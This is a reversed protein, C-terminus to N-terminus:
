IAPLAKIIEGRMRRSFPIKIGSFYIERNEIDISTARGVNSLYSRHVKMFGYVSLLEALERLSIFSTFSHNQTYTISQNGDAQIYIIDAIVIKYFVDKKKFYLYQENSLVAGEQLPNNAIGKLSNMALEIATQLSFKSVPKNLYGISNNTKVSEYDMSEEMEGILIIPIQQNKVQEAIQLGAQRNKIHNNMLVLDPQDMLIIELAEESNDVSGKVQYGIARVLRDLEIAFSLDDEVILISFNTSVQPNIISM